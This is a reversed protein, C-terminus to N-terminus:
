GIDLWTIELAKKGEQLVQLAAYIKDAQDILYERVEFDDGRIGKDAGDLKFGDPISLGDLVKSSSALTNLDYAYTPKGDVIPGNIDIKYFKISFSVSGATSAVGQNIVWPFVMENTEKFTAVDVFPVAYVRRERKANIYQITCTMQSLDQHDYYRPVKFYITESRHDKIVGLFPPAEIKRTNLDINYINEDSPVLIAYDPSGQEAQIAQYIDKYQLYEKEQSIM